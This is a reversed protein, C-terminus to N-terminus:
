LLTGLHFLLYLLCVIILGTDITSIIFFYQIHLVCQTHITVMTVSIVNYITPMFMLVILFSNIGHNNM